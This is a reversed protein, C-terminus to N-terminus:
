TAPREGNAFVWGPLCGAPLSASVAALLCARLAELWTLLLGWRIRHAAWSSAAGQCYISEHLLAYLPNTDWAM